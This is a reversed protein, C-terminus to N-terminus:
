GPTKPEWGTPPTVLQEDLERVEKVRGELRRVAREALELFRAAQKADSGKERLLWLANLVTNLPNKLEHTLFSLWQQRRTRRAAEIGAALRLAAEDVLASLRRASAADLKEQSECLEVLARGATLVARVAGSVPVGREVFAVGMGDVASLRAAEAPTDAHRAEWLERLLPEVLPAIENGPQKALTERLNELVTGMNTM